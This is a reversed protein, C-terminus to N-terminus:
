KWSTGKSRTLMVVKRLESSGLDFCCCLLQSGMLTHCHKVGHVKHLLTKRSENNKKLTLTVLRVLGIGSRLRFSEMYFRNLRAITEDDLSKLDYHKIM